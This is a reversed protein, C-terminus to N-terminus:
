RLIWESGMRGNVGKDESHNREKQCEWWLRTGKREGGRGAM